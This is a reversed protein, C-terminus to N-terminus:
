AAVEIYQTAKQLIALQLQHISNLEAIYATDDAYIIKKAITNSIKQEQNFSAMTIIPVAAEDEIAKQSTKIQLPITRCGLEQSWCYLWVDIGSLRDEALLSPLAVIDKDLMLNIAAMATHENIAGIYRPGDLSNSPTSLLSLQRDIIESNLGLVAETAKQRDQVTALPDSFIRPVFVLEHLLISKAALHEISTVDSNASQSIEELQDLAWKQAKLITQEIERTPMATVRLSEIMADLRTAEETARDGNRSASEFIARKQPNGLGPPRLFDPRVQGRSATLTDLYSM